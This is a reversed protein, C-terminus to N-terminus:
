SRWPLALASGDPLWTLVPTAAFLGVTEMPQPGTNFIQHDRGKPRSM